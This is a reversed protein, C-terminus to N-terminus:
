VFKPLNKANQHSFQKSAYKLNFLRLEVKFLKIEADLFYFTCSQFIDTGVSLITMSFESSQAPRLLWIKCPFYSALSSIGPSTLALWYGDKTSIKEPVVCNAQEVSETLPSSRFLPRLILPTQYFFSLARSPGVAGRERGSETQQENGLRM